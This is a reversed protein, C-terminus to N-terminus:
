RKRNEFFGPAPRADRVGIRQLTLLNWLSDKRFVGYYSFLGLIAM